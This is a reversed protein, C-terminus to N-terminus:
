SGGYALCPAPRLRARFAAERTRIPWFTASGLILICGAASSGMKSAVTCDQIAFWVCQSPRHDKGKKVRAGSSAAQGPGSLRSAPRVAERNLSIPIEWAVTSSM